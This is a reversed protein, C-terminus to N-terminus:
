LIRDCHALMNQSGHETSALLLVVQFHVKSEEAIIDYSLSAKIAAIQAVCAIMFSVIQGLARGLVFTNMAHHSAAM